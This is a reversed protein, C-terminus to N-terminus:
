RARIPEDSVYIRPYEGGSSIKLIAAQKAVTLSSSIFSSAVGAFM